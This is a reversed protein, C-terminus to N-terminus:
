PCSIPLVFGCFCYQVITPPQHRNATLPRHNTATPPQRHRNATQPPQHNSEFPQGKGERQKARNSECREGSWCRIDDSRTLPPAPIPILCSPRGEEKLSGNGKAPGVRCVLRGRVAFAFRARQPSQSRGRLRLHPWTLGKAMCPRPAALPSLRPPAGKPTRLRMDDAARGM